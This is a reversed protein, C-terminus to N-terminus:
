SPVHCDLYPAVFVSSMPLMDISMSYKSPSNSATTKLFDWMNWSSASFCHLFICPFTSFICLCNKFTSCLNQDAFAKAFTLAYCLNHLTANSLCFFYIQSSSSLGNFICLQLLSRHFPCFYIFLSGVQIFSFILFINLKNSNLLFKILWLTPSKNLAITITFNGLKYFPVFIWLFSHPLVSTVSFEFSGIRINDSSTWRSFSFIRLAPSLFAAFVYEGGWQRTTSKEFPVYMDSSLLTYNPLKSPFYVVM